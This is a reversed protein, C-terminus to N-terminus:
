GPGGSDDGVDQTYIDERLPMLDDIREFRRREGYDVLAYMVDFFDTFFVIKGISSGIKSHSVKDGTEFGEYSSLRQRNKIHTGMLAYVLWRGRVHALSPAGM